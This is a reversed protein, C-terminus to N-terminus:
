KLSKVIDKVEKITVPTMHINPFPHKYVDSLFKLAQHRNTSTSAKMLSFQHLIVCVIWFVAAQLSVSTAQCEHLQYVGNVHQIVSFKRYYLLRQSLSKNTNLNIIITKAKAVKSGMDNTHGYTLHMDALKNFLHGDM